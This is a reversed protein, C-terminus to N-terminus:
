NNKFERSEESQLLMIQLATAIGPVSYGDPYATFSEGMPLKSLNNHNPSVLYNSETTTIGYPLLSTQRLQLQRKNSAIFGSVKILLNRSIPRDISQWYMMFYQWYALRFAIGDYDAFWGKKNKYGYDDWFGGHNNSYNITALLLDGAYDQYKNENTLKSLILMGPLVVGQNYTFMLNVVQGSKFDHQNRSGTGVGDLLLGDMKLKNKPDESYTLFYGDAVKRTKELILNYKFKKNAIGYRNKILLALRAGATVYLSNSITSKYYPIEDYKIHWMLSYSGKTGKTNLYQKRSLSLFIKYSYDVLKDAVPDYPQHHYLEEAYSIFFNVWWLRDDTILCYGSLQCINKQQKQPFADWNNIKYLLELFQDYSGYQPQYASIVPLFDHFQGLYFHNYDLITEMVLPVQWQQYRFHNNGYGDQGALIGQHFFLAYVTRKLEVLSVSELNTSEAVYKVSLTKSLNSSEIGSSLAPLKQQCGSLIALLFFLFIFGLRSKISNGLM